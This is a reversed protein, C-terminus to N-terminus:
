LPCGCCSVVPCFIATGVMPVWTLSQWTALAASGHDNGNTVKVCSAMAALAASGHDNGSSFVHPTGSM